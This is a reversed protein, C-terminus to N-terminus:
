RDELAGGTPEGAMDTDAGGTPATGDDPRGASGPPDTGLEGALDPGPRDYQPTQGSSDAGADELRDIPDTM